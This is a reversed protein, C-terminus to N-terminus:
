QLACLADIVLLYQERVQLADFADVRDEEISSRESTFGLIRMRGLVSYIIM